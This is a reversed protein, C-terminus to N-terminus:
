VKSFYLLWWYIQHWCSSSRPFLVQLFSRSSYLSHHFPFNILLHFLYPWAQDWIELWRRRSFVPFQRPILIAEFLSSALLILRFLPVWLVSLASNELSSLPLLSLPSEKLSVVDEEDTWVWVLQELSELSLFVKRLYTVKRAEWIKNSLNSTSATHRPLTPSWSNLDRELWWDGTWSRPKLQVYDVPRSGAPQYEEDSNIKTM